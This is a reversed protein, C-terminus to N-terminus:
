RCATDRRLELGFHISAFVTSQLVFAARVVPNELFPKRRCSRMKAWQLNRGRGVIPLFKFLPASRHANLSTAPRTHAKTGMM